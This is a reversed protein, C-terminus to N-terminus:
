RKKHSTKVILGSDLIRKRWQDKRGYCWAVLDSVWLLPEDVAKLHDFTFQRNAAIARSITRRDEVDRHDRSEIILRTTAMLGTDDLLDHLAERRATEEHKTDSTYLATRMGLDVAAALFNRRDRDSENTAHFQHRQKALTQRLVKRAAGVRNADVITAAVIYLGKGQIRSEDVFVHTQAPSTM